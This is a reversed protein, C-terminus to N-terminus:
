HLRVDKERKSGLLRGRHISYFQERGRRITIPGPPRYYCNWGGLRAIVWSARALSRCPHPNKQRETKGELTPTLAEITDIQPESFAISAPLGYTGDREQVLQIDICAAKIAVATLKMLGEATAMQSDELGLGQSKAVRFLQEITWRLRYWGVIRWADAVTKVDHTTLLRWHIPDAGEPAGPELVEILNLRVTVALTRDKENVPRCIVVPGFRIGIEATRAARGGPRAPLELKYPGTLAFRAAATFLTGADAVPDDKTAVLRRDSQARILLHVGAAPIKAWIPYLDSERDGIVTTMAAPALVTKAQEATDLWRRSERDTLGRNRLPTTVKTDRNWVEGGVLGLCAGGDADVALMVHALVGYSNGHGCQGLGRRREATTSFSVETTDQLALVHRGRCAEGTREGWNAVIKGATVKKNGFFRRAGEVGAHNGGFRRMCVTKRVAM